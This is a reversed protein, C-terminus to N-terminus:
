IHVQRAMASIKTPSWEPLSRQPCSDNTSGGYREHKPTDCAKQDGIGRSCRQLADLKLAGRLRERRAVAYLAEQGLGVASTGKRSDNPQVATAPHVFGRFLLQGVVKNGPAIDGQQDVAKCRAVYIM